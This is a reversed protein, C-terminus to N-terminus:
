PNTILLSDYRVLGGITTSGVMYTGVGTTNETIGTGSNESFLQQWDIGNLSYWYTRHTSDNKIRLWIGYSQVGLSRDSNFVGSSSHQTESTLLAAQFFTFNATTTSQLFVGYMILHGTGSAKILMGFMENANTSNLLTAAYHVTYTYPITLATGSYYGAIEDGTNGDTCSSSCSLIPDQDPTNASWSNQNAWTYGTTAWSALPPGQFGNYAVWSSGSYVYSHPSNSTIFTDGANPTAPFSSFLGTSIVNGGGGGGGGPTCNTRTHTPDDVCTMNSPFNVIPEQPLPTGASQIVQYFIANAFAAQINSSQVFSVAGAVFLLLVTIWVYKWFVKSFRM